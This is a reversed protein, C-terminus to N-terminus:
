SQKHKNILSAIELEVIEYGIAGVEMRNRIDELIEVLDKNADIYQQSYRQAVEDILPNLPHEKNWVTQDKEFAIEEKLLELDTM